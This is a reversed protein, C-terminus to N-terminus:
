RDREAKQMIVAEWVRKCIDAMDLLGADRQAVATHPTLIVNKFQKLPEDPLAPEEYGVDLGYGGLRGTALADHLAERNVLQARAINVLIAGPKLKALAANDLIGKTGDNLPVHLSLFDSRRLLEDFSVYEANYFAEDTASMRTRQHYLVKMGFASARSAVERGIEGMGLAGFVRGYLMQVKPIRGYNSNTTYRRDYPRADFGSADLAKADVIKNTECLRRALAIMLTFAQEAVAVNVRRKQVRVSMNSKACATVDISSIITGFKHVIRLDDSLKLEAEGYDLTEIIAAAAGPLRRHFDAQDKVLEVQAPFLGAVEQRFARLWGEFDNIDHAMFDALAARHEDTVRPDLLVPVIRLYPDDEVLIRLM